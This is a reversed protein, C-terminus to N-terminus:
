QATIATGHQNAALGHFLVIRLQINAIINRMRFIARHANNQIRMQPQRDVIPHDAGLAARNVDIGGGLNGRSQVSGDPFAARIDDGKRILLAVNIQFPEACIKILAPNTRNEHLAACVGQGTKDTCIKPIFIMAKNCRFEDAPVADINKVPFTLFHKRQVGGAM